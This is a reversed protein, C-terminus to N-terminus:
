LEEGALVVSSANVTGETDAPDSSYELGDFPDLKHIVYETRPIDTGAMKEHLVAKVIYRASSAEAARVEIQQDSLSDGCIRKDLVRQINLAKQSWKVKDGVKIPPSFPDAGNEAANM